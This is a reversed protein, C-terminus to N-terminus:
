YESLGQELEECNESIWNHLLPRIKKELEKTITVETEDETNIVSLLENLEFDIQKEERRFRAGFHEYSEMGGSIQATINFTVNYEIQDIEFSATKEITEMTAKSRSSAREIIGSKRPKCPKKWDKRWWM